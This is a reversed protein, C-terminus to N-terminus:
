TNSQLNEIAKEKRRYYGALIGTDAPSIRGLKRSFARRQGNCGELGGVRGAALQAIPVLQMSLLTFKDLRAAPDPISGKGKRASHFHGYVNGKQSFLYASFFGINTNVNSRPNNLNLASAGSNSTNNYSAGVIPM